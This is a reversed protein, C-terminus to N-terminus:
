KGNAARWANLQAQCEAVITDIGSAKLKARFDNVLQEVNDNQGTILVKHYESLASSCAAIENAVPEQDFVFGLNSSPTANQNLENVMEGYNAPCGPVVKSVPFAGLNWGYWAYWYRNSPDSNLETFEIVGDNDNDTWGVGEPGFRIMTALYTDTNLLEIVELTREINESGAPIAFGGSQIGSTTLYAVDSTVLKSKYNPNEDEDVFLLGISMNGAIEGANVLVKDEDFSKTDFPVIGDVVLQRITKCFEMYEDSFFPCYVTEGEGMGSLGKLGAINSALLVNKSGNSGIFPDMFYWAEFYELGGDLIPQNAKEPYKADRAAKLEYMFSILEDFTDYSEPIAVGLEDALSANFTFCFNTALDKIPPVAYVNGDKSYADWAAEPLQAKTGPLYEDIYDNLAVFGGRAATQNFSIRSAGSILCDIPAGSNFITTVSDNYESNKYFHWEITTNLKEKLYANVAELTEDMGATLKGNFTYWILEVHEREAPTTEPAENGGQPKTEAPKNSGQTEQPKDTNCATMVSLMMVLALALSLVKLIMKKAM